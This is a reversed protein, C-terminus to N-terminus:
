LGWLSRLFGKLNKKPTSKALSPSSLESTTEDEKKKKIVSTDLSLEEYNGWLFRLFGKLSRKNVEKGGELCSIFKKELDGILENLKEDGLKNTYEKLKNYSGLIENAEQVQKITTYKTAM